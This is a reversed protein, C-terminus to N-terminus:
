QVIKDVYLKYVCVADRLFTFGVGHLLSSSGALYEVVIIISGWSYPNVWQQLPMSDDVRQPIRTWFLWPLLADYRSWSGDVFAPIRKKSDYEISYHFAYLRAVM